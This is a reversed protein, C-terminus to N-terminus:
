GRVLVAERQREFAGMASFVTSQAKWDKYDAPSVSFFELNRAAHKSWLRVLADADHYPLPRLLVGYAVSFVASTAGIGLAMTIVVALSFGINLRLMRLAYRLDSRMADWRFARQKRAARRTGLDHCERRIGEVDGFRLAALRQAEDADHGAHRYEETRMSLHFALEDDLDARPNAEWFRRYRQWLPERAMITEEHPGPVRPAWSRPSRM